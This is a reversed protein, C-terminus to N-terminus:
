KKGRMALALVVGALVIGGIILVPKTVSSSTSSSGGGLKEVVANAWAEASKPGSHIGDGSGADVAATTAPRSDFIPVGAAAAADYLKAMNENNYGSSSRMRPPGIWLSQAPNFRSILKPFSAVVDAANGGKGMDNSGLVVLLMDPAQPLDSPKVSKGKRSVEDTLWDAVTTGGVGAVTVKHGLASLKKALVDGFCVTKSNLYADTTDVHSDGIILVNM